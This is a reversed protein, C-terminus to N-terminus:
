VGSSTVAGARRTQGSCAVHPHVIGESKLEAWALQTWPKPAECPSAPGSLGVVTRCIIDARSVNKPEIHGMLCKGLYTPIKRLQQGFVTTYNTGVMPDNKFTEANMLRGSEGVPNDEVFIAESINRHDGQFFAVYVPWYVIQSDALLSHM